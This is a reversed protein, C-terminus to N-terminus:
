GLGVAVALDQAAAHHARVRAVHDALYRQRNFHASVSHVDAFGDVWVGRQAFANAHRRFHRMTRARIHRRTLPSRQRMHPLVFGSSAVTRTKNKRRKFLCPLVRHIHKTNMNLVVLHLAVVQEVGLARQQM